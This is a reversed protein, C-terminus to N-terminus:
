WVSLVSRSLLWNGHTKLYTQRLELRWHHREGYLTADSITRAVLSVVPAEGEVQVSVEEFKHYTLDGSRLLRLWQSKNITQGNFNTRTFGETLLNALADYDSAVLAKHFAEYTALVRAKDSPHTM